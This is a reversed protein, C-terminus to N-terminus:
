YQSLIQQAHEKTEVKTFIREIKGDKGIVFTTRNIGEYEKGYMMKKGWVGYDTIVKKVPDPILPYPFNFKNSFGEQSKKTDASVGIIKFGKVSLEAYHDRLSCAEATCGPTNAKPYFFLIVRSGSYDSLRILNGREDFANIEPAKDGIKLTIM